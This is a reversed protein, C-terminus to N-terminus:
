VPLCVAIWCCTAYWVQDHGGIATKIRSPFSSLTGGLALFSAKNNFVVSLQTIISLDAFMSLRSGVLAIPAVPPGPYLAVAKSAPRGPSWPCTGTAPSDFVSRNGTPPSLSSAATRDGSYVALMTTHSQHAFELHNLSVTPRDWPIYQHSASMASSPSPLGFFVASDADKRHLLATDHMSYARPLYMTSDDDVKNITLGGLVCSLVTCAFTLWFWLKSVRCLELSKRQQRLRSGPSKRQGGVRTRKGVVKKSQKSRANAFNTAIFLCALAAGWMAFVAPILLCTTSQLQCLTAEVLM